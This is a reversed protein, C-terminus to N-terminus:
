SARRSMRNPEVVQEFAEFVEDMTPGLDSQRTSPRCAQAGATRGPRLRRKVTSVSCGLRGALAALTENPHQERLRLVDVTGRSGRTGVFADWDETEITVGIMQRIAARENPTTCAVYGAVDSEAVAWYLCDALVPCVSCAGRAATVLREYERWTETSASSRVPPEELLPALFVSNDSLCPMRNGEDHMSTGASAPDVMTNVGTMNVITRHLRSDGTESM